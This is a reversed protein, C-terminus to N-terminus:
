WCDIRCTVCQIISGDHRNTYM